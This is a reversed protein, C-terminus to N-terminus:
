DASQITGAPYSATFMLPQRIIIQMLRESLSSLRLSVCVWVCVCQTDSLYFYENPITQEEKREDPKIPSCWKSASSVSLNELHSLSQRISRISPQPSPTPPPTDM